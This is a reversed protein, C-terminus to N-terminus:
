IMFLDSSAVSSRVTKKHLDLQEKYQLHSPLSVLSSSLICMTVALRVKKLNVIKGYEGNECGGCYVKNAGWFEAYGKNEM